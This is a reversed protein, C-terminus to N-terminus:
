EGIIIRYKVKEAIFWTSYNKIDDEATYCEDDAFYIKNDKFIMACSFWWVDGEEISRGNNYEVDKSFIMEINCGWLGDFLVVLEGENNRNIEKIYGDHFDGSVCMLNEIDNKNKIDIYEGDYKTIYKKCKDLLENTYEGSNIIKDLEDKSIFNVKGLGKEDLKMDSSDYDYILLLKKIYKTNHAYEDQFYLKNNNEDFVLYRYYYGAKWKDEIKDNIIAFVKSAHYTGDGHNILAKMYEGRFINYLM